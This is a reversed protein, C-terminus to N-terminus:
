HSFGPSTHLAPGTHVHSQSEGPAPIARTMVHNSCHGQAACSSTWLFVQMANDANCAHLGAQEGHERDDDDRYVQDQGVAYSQPDLMFHPLGQPSLTHKPM